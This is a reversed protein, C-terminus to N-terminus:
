FCGVESGGLLGSVSALQPIIELEILLKNNKNQIYIKQSVDQQTQTVCSLLIM